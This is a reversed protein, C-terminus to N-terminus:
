LRKKNKEEDIIKSINEYTQTKVVIIPINFYEAHKLSADNIDDYCLIATPLIKKGNKNKRRIAIENHWGRQTRRILDDSTYPDSNNHFITQNHELDAIKPSHTGDDFHVSLIDDASVNSFVYMIDPYYGCYVSLLQDSVLSTSIIESGGPLDQCFFAPNNITLIHAPRGYLNSDRPGRGDKHMVTVLFKYPKNDKLEYVKVEHTKKKSDKVKKLTALEVIENSKNIEEAYDNQYFQKLEINLEKICNRILAQKDEDLSKLYNHLKMLEETSLKTFEDYRLQKFIDIIEGYKSYFEEYVEHTVFRRLPKLLTFNIDEKLHIISKLVDIKDIVKVGSISFVDKDYESEKIIGIKDILGAKILDKILTYNKAKLIGVITTRIYKNDSNLYYALLELFVDEGLNDLISQSYLEDAIENSFMVNLTESDLKIKIKRDYLKNIIFAFFDLNGNQLLKYIAAKVMVSDTSMFIESMDYNRISIPTKYDKKFCLNYVKRQMSYYNVQQNSNVITSWSVGKFADASGSIEKAESVYCWLNYSCIDYLAYNRERVLEDIRELVFEDDYIEKLNDIYRQLSKINKTYFNQFEVDKLLFKILKKDTVYPSLIPYQKKIKSLEFM